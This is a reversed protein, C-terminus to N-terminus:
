WHDYLKVDYETILTFRAACTRLSVTPLTKFLKPGSSAAPIPFNQKIISLNKSEKFRLFVLSCIM